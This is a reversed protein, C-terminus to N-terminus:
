MPLVYLLVLVYLAAAGAIVFLHWIEHFGFRQPWPDPWKKAYVVGGVSYLLGGGVLWAMAAPPLVVWMKHLVFVAVWGMALYPVVALRRPGIGVSLKLVVGVMAMGWVTGLIAWRAWGQLVVGAIATYSAAILVFIAAHDLRHLWERRSEAGNYLHYVASACFQLVMGLGYAAFVAQRLADGQALVVLAITGALSALGAVAHSLGSFPERFLAQTAM